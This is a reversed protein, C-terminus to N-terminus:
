KQANKPLLGACERVKESKNKIAKASTKGSPNTDACTQNACRKLANMQPKGSLVAQLLSQFDALNSV